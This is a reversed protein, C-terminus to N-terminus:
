RRTFLMLYLHEGAPLPAAPRFGHPAVLAALAEPALRIAVPPGPPGERKRFEIAALTGGPRVVRAIEDLAAAATGTEVLDHLVTATLCLDISADNLPLRAGADAVEARINALGLQHAATRLAEIGEPWLDLAHLTTQPLRRALELTYAGAGCALDLIQGVGALPLAAFVRQVDILDFSSKGAAIPRPRAADGRAAATETTTAAEPAASHRPPGPPLPTKKGEKDVRVFTIRTSFVRHERGAGPADAWVEVGYGVSTHGQRQPLIVFRLISGNAVPERFVIDDMAVTVFTCGPFDRSAVLWAFEDVWKLLAGGFLYGQHNLHEPRVLAFTEM